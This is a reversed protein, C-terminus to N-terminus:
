SAIYRVSQEEGAVKLKGDSAIVEGNNYDFVEVEYSIFPFEQSKYTVHYDNALLEDEYEYMSKMGTRPVTEYYFDGQPVKRKRSVRKNTRSVVKKPTPLSPPPM